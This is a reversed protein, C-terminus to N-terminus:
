DSAKIGICESFKEGEEKYDHEHFIKCFDKGLTMGFKTDPAELQKRCLDFLFDAQLLGQLHDLDQISLEFELITVLLRRMASLPRSTNKYVFDIISYSIVGEALYLNWVSDVVDNELSKMQYTEALVWLKTLLGYSGKLSDLSAGRIDKPIYIRQYYLWYVFSKAVEEEDIPLTLSLKQTDEDTQQVTQLSAQIVLLGALYDSQACLAEKHVIAM